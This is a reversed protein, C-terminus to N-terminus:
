FTLRRDMRLCACLSSLVIHYCLVTRRCAVPMCSGRRGCLIGRAMPCFWCLRSRKFGCPRAQDWGELAGRSEQALRRLQPFGGGFLRRVEQGFLAVLCRMTLRICLPTSASVRLSPFSFFSPSFSPLSRGRLDFLAGPRAAHDVQILWLKADSVGDFQSWADSARDTVESM